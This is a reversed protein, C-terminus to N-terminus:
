ADRNRTSSNSWSLLDGERFRALRFLHLEAPKARATIFRAMAAGVWPSLSFGGGSFGLAFHLGDIGAAQDLVPMGDPTYDYVCAYTRHVFGDAMFPLTTSLRRQM